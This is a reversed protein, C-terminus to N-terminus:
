AYHIISGIRSKLFFAAPRTVKKKKYGFYDKGRTTGTAIKYQKIRHWEKAAQSGKPQTGHLLIAFPIGDNNEAHSDDHDLVLNLEKAEKESFVIKVYKLNHKFVYHDFRGGLSATMIFNDPIIESYKVMFDARKTYAYFLIHPNWRAVLMWAKFYAANFFDGSVHVRIKKAKKSISSSIVKAMKTTTKANRLVMFNHWRAERVQRLLAEASAAYCRFKTHEGDTITGTAPHAKSLCDKAGPCTWGAPLSFTHTGKDLKANGKFFKIRENVMGM